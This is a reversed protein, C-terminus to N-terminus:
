GPASRRASRLLADLDVMVQALVEGIRALLQVVQDAHFADLGEVLQQRLVALAVAAFHTFRGDARQQGGAPVLVDELRLMRRQLVGVVVEEGVDLFVAGVRHDRAGGAAFDRRFAQQRHALDGLFVVEVGFDGAGLADAQEARLLVVQRFDPALQDGGAEFGAM